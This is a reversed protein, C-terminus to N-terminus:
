GTQTAGYQSIQKNNDFSVFSFNVNKYTQTLYNMMSAANSQDPAPAGDAAEKRFNMQALGATRPDAYTKTNKVQM